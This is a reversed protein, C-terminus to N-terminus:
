LRGIERRPSWSPAVETHGESTLKEPAGGISVLYIEHQDSFVIRKHQGLPNEVPFAKRQFEEDIVVACPSNETDQASLFRGRLLPIRMISLYDPTVGSFLALDMQSQEVPKPRGEVWYRLESDVNMPVAGM